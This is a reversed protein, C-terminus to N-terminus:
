QLLFVGPSVCGVDSCGLTSLFAAAPVVQPLSTCAVPLPTADRAGCKAPAWYLSWGHSSPPWRPELDACTMSEGREWLGAKQVGQGTAGSSGRQALLPLALRTGHRGRVWTAEEGDVRGRGTRIKGERRWPSEGGRSAQMGAEALSEPGPETGGEPARTGATRDGGGPTLGSAAEERGVTVDMKWGQRSTDEPSVGGAEVPWLEALGEPLFAMRLAAM